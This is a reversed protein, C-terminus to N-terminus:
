GPFARVGCESQLVDASYFYFYFPTCRTAHIVIVQHAQEIVEAAAGVIIACAWAGMYTAVFCTVHQSYCVVWANQLYSSLSMPLLISIHHTTNNSLAQHVHHCHKAISFLAYCVLALL